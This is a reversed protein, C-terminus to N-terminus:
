PMKLSKKSRGVQICHSHLTLNILFSIFQKSKRITKWRNKRSFRFEQKQTQSKSHKSSNKDLKKETKYKTKDTKAQHTNRQKVQKHQREISKKTKM